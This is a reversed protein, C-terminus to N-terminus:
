NKYQKRFKIPTFGTERSFFKAFNTAEAFGLGEAILYIPRDTHVLLRKAELAIRATIANKASQGTAELAARTLSKETCGLAAAYASVQHWGAYNQELLRRFRAYRQVGPSQAVDIGMHKDQLIALRLLLACLEYRLLAHVDKPPAPSTADQQMRAIAENVAGFDATFLSLHDPLRDLGLVPLLDATTQTESPLFEARFLVMWGDWGKDSGFSHVQGPRLVLLSGAACNIPQFDVIQTVAGETVCILTHFSYHYLALIQESTVRRRLDSFHFIEVDLDRGSPRYNLQDLKARSKTM